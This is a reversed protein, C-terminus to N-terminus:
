QELLLLGYMLGIGLLIMALLAISRPLHHQRHLAPILDAGALYIFGGATVGLMTTSYPTILEGLILSLLGGIVALLATLLNLTLARRPTFGAHLLVAFDGMEQPVEHLIVAFTTALGIPISVLYSAGILLGDIFNHLADALLNVYGEPHIAPDSVQSQHEHHWHLFGEFVFFALIGVLVYFSGQASTPSSEYVEPLIHIFADGLLGGVALAIFGQLVHEKDRAAVGITVFGIVALMSVICVSGLTYLWAETM